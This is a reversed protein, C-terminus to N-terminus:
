RDDHASSVWETSVVRERTHIRRLIDVRDILRISLSLGSPFIGAPPPTVFLVQKSLGGCEAMHKSWRERRLPGLTGDVGFFM